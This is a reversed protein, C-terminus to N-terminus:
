INCYRLSLHVLKTDLIFLDVIPFWCSELKVPPRGLFASSSQRGFFTFVILAKCCRSLSIYTFYVHRDSDLMSRGYFNHDLQIPM